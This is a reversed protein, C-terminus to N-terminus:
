MEDIQNLQKNLEDLESDIEDLTALIDNDQMIDDTRILRPTPTPPVPSETRSSFVIRGNSLLENWMEALDPNSPGSSM